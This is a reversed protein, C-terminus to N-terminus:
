TIILVKLLRLIKFELIWIIKNHRCTETCAVMRLGDKYTIGVLISLPILTLNFNHCQYFRYNSYCNKFPTLLFFNLILRIPSNTSYAWGNCSNKCNQSNHQSNSLFNLHIGKINNKQHLSPWQITYIFHATHHYWLLTSISTLRLPYDPIIIKKMIHTCPSISVTLVLM